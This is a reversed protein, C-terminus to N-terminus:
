LLMMKIDVYSKIGRQPPHTNLNQVKYCAVASDPMRAACSHRYGPGARNSTYGIVPAAPPVPSGSFPLAPFAYFPPQDHPFWALGLRPVGPMAQNPEHPLGAASATDRHGEKQDLVPTARTRATLLAANFALFGPSDYLAAYQQRFWRQLGRRPRYLQLPCPVARPIVNPVSQLPGSLM